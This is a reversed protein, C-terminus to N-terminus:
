SKFLSFNLSCSSFVMLNDILENPYSWSICLSINWTSTVPQIMAESTMWGSWVNIWWGSQWSGWILHERNGNSTPPKFAVGGFFIVEDIPIILFGILIPFYFQHCGFWWGSKIPNWQIFGMFGVFGMLNQYSDWEWLIRIYAMIMTVNVMLIGWINAYIGYM